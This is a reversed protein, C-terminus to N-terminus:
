LRTIAGFIEPRRDRFFGWEERLQQSQDTDIQAYLIEEEDDGAAAVVEGSPASVLSRGYFDMESGNVDRQVRNVGAVWLLNAIAISRLEVDWMDKGAPTATPVFILDAGNLALSRGSEPFHREFCITIGVRIGLDTDFVPYGLNGPRFYYKEIGIEGPFKTLPIINKRYRGTVQGRRDIFAATNYLQDDEEDREYFPFVVYVGAARAAEAIASVSPGNVSEALKYHEREIETCFYISTALEPLCVIEAGAAAAEAIRASARGVNHQADDSFNMQILAVKAQM